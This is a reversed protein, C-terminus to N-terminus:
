IVTSHGAHVTQGIIQRGGPLCLFVIVATVDEPMSLRYFLNEPPGILRGMPSDEENSLARTM